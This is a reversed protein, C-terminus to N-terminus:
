QEIFAMSAENWRAGATRDAPWAAEIQAVDAPSLGLFAADFNEELHTRTRTGPIPVVDDGQHHLWALAWQAATAEAAAALERLRDAYRLNTDLNGPQFRPQAVRRFDAEGLQDVGRITATLFGRGLPAYPVITVGLQRCAPVIEAEIDRSWLSWETQLAAVPHVACARRLTDVGVESLGIERVKGEAVLGALTGVTEEIPVAPDVRTLTFLDLHSVGLRRLSAECCRRVHAPDARIGVGVGSGTRVVGFKTSLVAKDRRDAVAKGLLEEGRGHGYVDATDLLTVGLDLARHVTRIAENEDAPGYFEVMGLCGLGQRGVDLSGIRRRPLRTLTM